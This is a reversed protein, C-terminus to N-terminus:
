VIIEYHPHTQESCIVFYTIFHCMCTLLTYPSSSMKSYIIQCFQSCSHYTNAKKCGRLLILSRSFVTALAIVDCQVFTVSALLTKKERETQHTHTFTTKNTKESVLINLQFKQGKISQLSITCVHKLYAM